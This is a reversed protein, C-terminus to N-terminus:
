RGRDDCGTLGALCEPKRVDGEVEALGEPLGDDVREDTAIGAPEYPQTNPGARATMSFPPALGITCPM